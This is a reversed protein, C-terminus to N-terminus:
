FAVLVAGCQLTKADVNGPSVDGCVRRTTDAGSGVSFELIRSLVVDRYVKTIDDKYM